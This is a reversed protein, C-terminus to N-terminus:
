LWCRHAILVFDFQARVILLEKFRPSTLLRGKAPQPGCRLNPIATQPDVVGSRNDPVVSAL